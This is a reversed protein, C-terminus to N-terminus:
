SIRTVLEMAVLMERQRSKGPARLTYLSLRVAVVVCGYVFRVAWKVTITSGKAIFM